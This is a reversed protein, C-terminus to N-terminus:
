ALAVKTRVGQVGKAQETCLNFSTHLCRKTIMMPVEGAEEYAEIPADHAPRLLEARHAPLSM